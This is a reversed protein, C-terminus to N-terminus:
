QEKLIQSIIELFLMHVFLLLAKVKGAPLVIEILYTNGNRNKNASMLGRRLFCRLLLVAVIAADEATLVHFADASASAEVKAM